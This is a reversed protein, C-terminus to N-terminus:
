KFDEYKDVLENYAAAAAGNGWDYITFEGIGIGELSAVGDHGYNEMMFGYDEEGFFDWKREWQEKTKPNSPTYMMVFSASLAASGRKEYEKMGLEKGYEWILGAFLSQRSDNWEADANMVGFGGLTNVFIFPPQWTAQAMLLEDLTRQGYQLYVEEGTSLYSDLLAAATWYMSFTNQKHMNNRAIKRGVLHDAGYRSCSWYTEFDEWRGQPIVFEMVAEIAQLAAIRYKENGTLEHLKLLFRVSMATEPSKNLHEMPELTEKDLWGPFFGDDDQTKVLANAYNSAFELLRQDKELEDFWVLMQYATYSMDLIHFPAEKPDWTYPNRNSNGFYYTDWNSGDEPAIVSPFFGDQQPFSLALEKTMLAYEQLQEDGTRKAYRYLGGASRMSNFWAQNWISLFERQRPEGPYNPSQTVNVIFAPAGVRKQNIEFDQFVSEKWSEFAWQYTQAVYPELDNKGLPEGNDYLAEGWNSWLFTLVDRWPNFLKSPDDQTLIYFGVSVEGPPYVAGQERTYLVHEKVQSQSLGLVLKNEQADMDMYWDVPQDQKLLDLDPIISLQKDSTAMILAPARFVHQAIIHEDTPTLHPAWHFDPNFAPSLRMQWDDQQLSDTLEWRVTVKVLNESLVEYAIDPEASGLSDFSFESVYGELEKPFSDTNQPSSCGFNVSVCLGIVLLFVIRKM